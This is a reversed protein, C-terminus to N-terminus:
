LTEDLFTVRACTYPYLSRPIYRALSLAVYRYFSISLSLSLSISCSLSIPLSLYLSLSISPYIHSIHPYVILYRPIYRAHPDFPLALRTPRSLALVPAINCPCVGSAGAGVGVCMCVCM